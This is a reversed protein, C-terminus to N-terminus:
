KWHSLETNSTSVDTSESHLKSLFDYVKMNKHDQLNKNSM